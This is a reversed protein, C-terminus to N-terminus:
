FISKRAPKRDDYDIREFFRNPWVPKSIKNLAM